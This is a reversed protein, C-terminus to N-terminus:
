SRRFIALWDKQWAADRFRLGGGYLEVHVVQEAKAPADPLTIATNFRRRACYDRVRGLLDAREAPQLRDLFLELREVDVVPELSSRQDDTLRFTTV